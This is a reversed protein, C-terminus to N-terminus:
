RGLLEFTAEILDMPVSALVFLTWTSRRSSDESKLSFAAFLVPASLPGTQLWATTEIRELLHSRIAQLLRKSM